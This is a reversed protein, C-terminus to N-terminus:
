NRTHTHIDRWIQSTMSRTNAEGAPGMTLSNLGTLQRYISRLITANISEGTYFKEGGSLGNIYTKQM